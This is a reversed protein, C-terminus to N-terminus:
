GLSFIYCEGNNGRGEGERCTAGVISGDGCMEDPALSMMCERLTYETGNCMVDVAAYSTPANYFYDDNEISIGYTPEPVISSTCGHILLSDAVQPDSRGSYDAIM